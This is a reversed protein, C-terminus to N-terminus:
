WAPLFSTDLIRRLTLLGLDLGLINLEVEILLDQLFDCTDNEIFFGDL